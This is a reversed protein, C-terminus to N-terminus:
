VTAFHIKYYENKYKIIFTNDQTKLLNLLENWEDVPTEIYEGTTNIAEKLHPFKKFQDESMNMYSIPEEDLKEALIGKTGEFSTTVIFIAAITIVIVLSTIIAIKKTM